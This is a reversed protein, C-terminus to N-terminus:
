SNIDRYLESKLNLFVTYSEEILAKIKTLKIKSVYKSNSHILNNRLERLNKWRDFFGKSYKETKTMLSENLFSDSIDIVAQIGATEYKKLFVDKGYVPLKFCILEVFYDHFLQEILSAVMIVYAKRFENRKFTTIVSFIADSIEVDIQEELKDSFKDYVEDWITDNNYPYQELHKEFQNVYKDLTTKDINIGLTKLINYQNTLNEKDCEKSLDYISSVTHYFDIATLPPFANAWSINENCHNCKLNNTGNQCDVEQTYGCNKCIFIYEM